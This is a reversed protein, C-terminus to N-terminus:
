PTGIIPGLPTLPGVESVGYRGDQSCATKFPNRALMAPHLLSGLM